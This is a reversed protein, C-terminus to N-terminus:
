GGLVWTLVEGTNAAIYVKASVMGEPTSGGLRVIWVLMDRGGTVAPVATHTLETSKVVVTPAPPSVTLTAITIAEAASIASSQMTTTATSAADDPSAPAFVLLHLAVALVAIVTLVYMISDRKGPRRDAKVQERPSESMDIRYVEESEAGTRV